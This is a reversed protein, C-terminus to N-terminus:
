GTAHAIDNTLEAASQGGDLIAYCGTLLRELRKADLFGAIRHFKEMVRAADFPRQPDGPIHMVLREHTGDSTHVVLRAPWAKPYHTLLTEDATMSIKQMFARVRESVSVPSCAIDYLGDPDCAALALRYPLSTLHSARDGPTVGHNIMAFYPPPVHVEISTMTDPAIGEDIFEILAQTAAMTQRAACWPKFSTEALALRIGLDATFAALDPKIGYVGALFDSDLLKLDSTFGARAAQAAVLGRQAADGVAFWRSTTAANHHGAGPSALTLALALAHATQTADLEYLRSATAAAGFPAAIYTPWIGRYLVTSGGIATGLRVMSEIGAVIAELLAMGSTPPQAAAITLAAPIVIAGPTTTSALHINDVESLRTLACPTAIDSIRGNARLAGFEILARGEVTRSGAIWAGVTDIVHLQAAARLAEPVRGRVDRAVFAGMTELATM